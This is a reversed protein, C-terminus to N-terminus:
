PQNVLVRFREAAVSLKGNQDHVFVQIVHDGTDDSTFFSLKGKDTGNLSVNPNWYLSPRLDPVRSSLTAASHAPPDYSLPRSIGTVFLSRSTRQITAPHNIIGTEIVIIGNEGLNGFRRLTNESRLVGIRKVLGPSLGLVYPINDTMIGDVILIANDQAFTATKQIFVRLTEGEKVKRYRVMPVINMFMEAMTKFSEFKSVDIEVDADIEGQANTEKKVPNRKSLYHQYSSTIVKKQWKYVGYTDANDTVELGTSNATLPYDELVLKVERLVDKRHRVTYFVEENGFEKFLPFEFQGDKIAYVSFVFDNDNLYFTILTSDPVPSGSDLVARGRFFYPYVGPSLASPNEQRNVTVLRIVNGAFGDQGKSFISENYVVVTYKGTPHQKDNVQIDLKVEQRTGIEKNSVQLNISATQQVPYNERHGTTRQSVKNDVIVFDGILWEPASGRLFSETHAGLTYVGPSTDTPLVFHGSGMGKNFLVREHVIQQNGSGSLKISLIQREPQHRVPGIVYGAFCVTDGPAYVPQHFILIVEDPADVFYGTQANSFLGAHLAFLLVLSRIFSRMM